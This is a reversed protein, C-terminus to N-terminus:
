SAGLLAAREFLATVAEDLNALVDLSTNLAKTDEFGESLILEGKEQDITARIVNDLIMQSVKEETERKGVGLKQALFDIELRSYPKLMKLINQELLQDFLLDLQSSIVEDGQLKPAYERFVRSLAVVSKERYAVIIQRMLATQENGEGYDLGYRGVLLNAADELANLMVKALLLYQFVQAARQSQKSNHFAEFAEYFYSYAIPYDKEAMQITGATFDLEAQLSPQVYVSNSAAKAATLAAKAKPFNRTHYILRAELLHAEVLLLKDDIQKAERLIEAVRAQAQRHDGRLYLTNALRIEMKYRLFNKGEKVAWQVCFECVALEVEKQPSKDQEAVTDLLTKLVRAIAMKQEEGLLRVWEDILAFIAASDGTEAFRGALQLLAEERRSVKEAQDRMAAFLTQDSEHTEINM